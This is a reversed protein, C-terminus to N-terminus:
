RRKGHGVRDRRKTEPAGRKPKERAALERELQKWAEFRDDALAGSELAAQVACGPEQEHRCDSFRCGQGLEAIDDFAM